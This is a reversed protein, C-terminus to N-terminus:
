LLTLCKGMNSLLFIDPIVQSLCQKEASRKIKDQALKMGLRFYILLSKAKPSSSSLPKFWCCFLDAMTMLTDTLPQGDVTIIVCHRFVLMVGQLGSSQGENFMFNITCSLVSGKKEIYLIISFEHKLKVNVFRIKKKTCYVSM